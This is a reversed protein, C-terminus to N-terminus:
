QQGAAPQELAELLLALYFVTDRDRATAIPTPSIAALQLAKIIALKISSLEAPTLNTFM